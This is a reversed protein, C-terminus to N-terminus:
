RLLRTRPSRPTDLRQSLPCALDITLSQSRDTLSVVAYQDDAAMRISTTNILRFSTIRATNIPKTSRLATRIFMSQKCYTQSLPISTVLVCTGSTSKLLVFPPIPKSDIESAFCAGFRDGRHRFRPHDIVDLRNRPDPPPLPRNRTEVRSEIRTEGSSTSTLSGHGM